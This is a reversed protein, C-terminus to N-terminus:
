RPEWEVYRSAILMYQLGSAVTLLATAPIALNQLAWGLHLGVIALLAVVVTVMQFATSTKGLMTPAPHVQGGTLM